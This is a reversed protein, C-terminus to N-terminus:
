GISETEGTPFTILKMGYINYYVDLIEITTFGGGYFGASNTDSITKRESDKRFPIIFSLLM